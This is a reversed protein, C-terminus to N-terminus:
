IRAELANAAAYLCDLRNLDTKRKHSSEICVRIWRLMERPSYGYTDIDDIISAAFEAPTMGIADTM